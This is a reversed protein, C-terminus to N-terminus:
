VPLIKQFYSKESCTKRSFIRSQFIIVDAKTTFVLEAFQIYIHAMPFVFHKFQCRLSGCSKGSTETWIVCEPLNLRNCFFVRVGFNWTRISVWKTFHQFHARHRKLWSRCASTRFRGLRFYILQIIFTNVLMALINKCSSSSCLTQQPISVFVFIFIFKQLYITYTYTYYQYIVAHAYTLRVHAHICTFIM